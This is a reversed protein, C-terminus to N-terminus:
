WETAFSMEIQFSLLMFFSINTRTVVLRISAAQPPPLFGAASSGTSIVNVM